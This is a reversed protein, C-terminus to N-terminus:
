TWAFSIEDNGSDPVFSLPITWGVNGNLEATEPYGLQAAPASVTLINGATGGLVTEFTNLGLAAIEAYVDYTAVSPTYVRLSGSTNRDNIVVELNESSELIQVDNNLDITLSDADLAVSDYEVSWSSQEVALPSIQTYTPTALATDTPNALLGMFRFRWIPLQRINLVLSVTGRAGLVLQRMGDFWVYFAVSKFASSVPDYVESTAPTNTGLLGCAELCADYAPATGATGSGAVEVDFSLEVAKAVNIFARGGMYPQDNQRQIQQAVSRLSVNQALLANNAGTPTPDSGYVTEAKALLLKKRWYKAFAM